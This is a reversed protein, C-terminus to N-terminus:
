LTFTYNFSIIASKPQLQLLEQSRQGQISLHLNLISVQQYKKEGHLGKSVQLKHTLRANLGEYQHTPQAELSRACLKSWHKHITKKRSNAPM